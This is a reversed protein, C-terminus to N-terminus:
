SRRDRSIEYQIGGQLGLAKLRCPQRCSTHHLRTPVRTWSYCFHISFIRFEPVSIYIYIYFHLVSNFLRSKITHCSIFLTWVELIRQKNQSLLIYCNLNMEWIWCRFALQMKSKLVQNPYGSHHYLLLSWWLWDWVELFAVPVVLLCQVLYKLMVTFDEHLYWHASTSKYAFCLFM